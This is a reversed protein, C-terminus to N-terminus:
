KTAVVYLDTGLVRAINGLLKERPIVIRGRFLVLGDFNQADIRISSFHEFLHRRVDSRSVFDTHPAADGAANSDYRARVMEGLNGRRRRGTVIEWLYRTRLQALQRFSHRNYLMVVAKGGAALVRHVESVAKPLDGTHHLCGISYVYDFTGDPYPIDLASGKQVRDGVEKGLLGLRYRTMEVAAAAIDLGYYQCGRLAILQGLTGYGLGIELVRKGELDEETVYRSLYPYMALYAEDFKRLSEPTNDRIGLSRALPSGGLENWFAANRADTESQKVEARAMADKGDLISALVGAVRHPRSRALEVLADFRHVGGVGVFVTLRRSRMLECVVQWGLASHDWVMSTVLGRRLAVSLESMSDSRNEELSAMRAPLSRLTLVGSAPDFTRRIFFPERSQLSGRRAQRVIELKFLDTVLREYGIRRRIRRDALWQFFLTRLPDASIARMAVRAKAFVALDEKLRTAIWGRRWRLLRALLRRVLESTLDGIAADRLASALPSAPLRDIVRRFYHISDLPYRTPLETVMSREQQVERVGRGGARGGPRVAGLGTGRESLKREIVGDVLEIFRRYSYTGSAILHRYAREGVTELAPIDEVQRLVEDVNSFDKRLEVYHEGPQILGSYRGTLLIMPTRLAAAEFVRPSIQGMGIDKEHGAVHLQFEEYSLGPKARKVAKYQQEISGDFDFVNSGSESGLMTRCSEVFAYWSEGYIRNEETVEIDCRVGRDLCIARMRRGIEYKWFGLEGYRASIDRGRYGIVIPRRELPTTGSKTELQEPVYGTLVTIFETHPFRERPYVHSLSSQPVCTFVVDFGLEEIGQRLTETRDYEDQVSMLKLGRYTGLADRVHSGVYGPFCLRGCYNLWIADFESLEVGFRAGHTGNIYSVDYRSYRGFSRVYEMTTAVFTSAVSYIVLLKGPM